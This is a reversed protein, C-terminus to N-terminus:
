PQAQQGREHAASMRRGCAALLHIAGSQSPPKPTARGALTWRSYRRARIRKSTGRGLPTRRRMRYFSMSRTPSGSFHVEEILRWPEEDPGHSELTSNDFAPARLAKSRAKQAARRLEDLAAGVDGGQLSCAAIAHETSNLVVTPDDTVKGTPGVAGFASYLRGSARRLLDKLEAAPYTLKLFADPDGYVPYAGRNRVVALQAASHQDTLEDSPSAKRLTCTATIPKVAGGSKM